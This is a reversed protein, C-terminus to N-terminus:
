KVHNNELTEKISYYMDVIDNLIWKKDKDVENDVKRQYDYIVTKIFDIQDSKGYKMKGCREM